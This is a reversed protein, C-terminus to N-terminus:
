LRISFTDPHLRAGLALFEQAEAQVMAIIDMKVEPPLMPQESPELDFPRDKAGQLVDKLWSEAARCKIDTLMMFIDSGGTKAIELARDPDYVGRRQRECKLLRETLETKAFKARNWCDAVHGAIASGFRANEKGLQESSIDIEVPSKGMVVNM